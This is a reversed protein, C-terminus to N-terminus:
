DRTKIKKYLQNNKYIYKKWDLRKIINKLLNINNIYNM